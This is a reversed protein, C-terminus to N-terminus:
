KRRRHLVLAVAAVAIIAIGGGAVILVIPLEPGWLSTSVLTYNLWNYSTRILEYARCLVTLGSAQDWYIDLYNIFYLGHGILARTTVHNVSRTAGGTDMSITENIRPSPYYPTILDGQALNPCILFFFAQSGIYSINSDLPTALTTGNTYQWTVSMVVISGSVNLVLLTVGKLQYFASDTSVTYDARDGSKVGATNYVPALLALSSATISSLILLTALMTLACASYKGLAIEEPM